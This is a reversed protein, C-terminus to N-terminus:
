MFQHFHDAMVRQTPVRCDVRHTQQGAHDQSVSMTRALSSTIPQSCIVMPLVSRRCDVQWLFAAADIPAVPLPTTASMIPFAIISISMPAEECLTRAWTGPMRQSIPVLKRNSYCLLSITTLSFLSWFPRISSLRQIPLNCAAIKPICATLLWSRAGSSVAHGKTCLWISPFPVALHAQLFRCKM